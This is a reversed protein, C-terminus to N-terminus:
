PLRAARLASRRLKGADDRLPNAIFEFSRPLKYRVLREELHVRLDDEPIPTGDDTQVIAHVRNGLDDDPLGIVASSRVRPHEDLAAEVEAPYVNSGGVLIMDTQRDSLYLYGDADMSGMDGLSEWGGPLTRATAGVYRYTREPNRMYVEGVEGPPLEDGGPGFVKMEGVLVRGVSGRHELWERGNIITTAQAETGAYLEWIVDPGLWDIWAQKLWPPCPASLHWVVRLSSVDYRDRVEPPLKWIRAMMTPVVYMSEPRHRDILALTREADFRGGLVVHNGALLATTTWVFPGNHYLPGPMLHTGDLPIMFLPNADPDIRGPGGALILKPRGTSGGSTMAKWPDSVADPLADAGRALDAVWGSPLCPRGRFEGDAAGVVVRPNALEVIAELERRPLRASVPQPTAGLKWCAVTTAVFPVGNPLAITVLDGARVGRAALAHATGTALRDLEGRTVTREEDTVAPRDPERHAHDALRRAYSIMPVRRNQGFAGAEHPQRRACRPENHEAAM